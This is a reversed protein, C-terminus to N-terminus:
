AAGTLALTSVMAQARDVATLIKEPDDGGRVWAVEVKQLLEFHRGTRRVKRVSIVMAEGASIVGYGYDHGDSGLHVEWVPTVGALARKRRGDRTVDDFMRGLLMGAAFIAAVLMVAAAIPVEIM